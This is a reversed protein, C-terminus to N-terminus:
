AKKETNTDPKNDLIVFIRLTKIQEAQHTQVATVLDEDNCLTILEEESDKYKLVFKNPIEHKFKRLVVDRLDPFSKPVDALKHIDSSPAVIKCFM